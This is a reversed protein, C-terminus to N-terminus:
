NENEGILGLIGAILFFIDGGVAGIVIALIHPWNEVVGNNLAKICKHGCIIVVLQLVTAIIGVVLLVGGVVSAPVGDIPGSATPVSAAIEDMAGSAWIGGVLTVILCSVLGLYAFVLGITYLLKSATKM